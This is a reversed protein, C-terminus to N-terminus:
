EAQWLHSVRNVPAVAYVAMSSKTINLTSKQTDDWSWTGRVGTQVDVDAPLQGTIGINIRRCWYLSSQVLLVLGQFSALNASGSMHQKGSAKATFLKVVPVVSIKVCSPLHASRQLEQM